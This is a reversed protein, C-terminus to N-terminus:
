EQAQRIMDESMKDKDSVFDIRSKADVHLGSSRADHVFQGAERSTRVALNLIDSYDDM